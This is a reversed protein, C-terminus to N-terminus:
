TRTLAYATTAVGVGVLAAVLAVLRRRNGARGVFRGIVGDDRKGGVAWVLLAFWLLFSVMSLVNLGAILRREPHQRAVAIITPVFNFVLVAVLAIGFLMLRGIDM